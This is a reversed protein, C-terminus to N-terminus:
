GDQHQPEPTEILVREVRTRTTKLVLIRLGDVEISQGIDPISGLDHLILGAITDYHDSEPLNFGFEENLEDVHAKGTVELGRDERIVVEAEEERDHEDVIEGVITELADEITVVGAIAQYEDVVVAMHNRHRLCERLLDDVPKTGPVFWTARLLEGVTRRAQEPPKSLEPLLDKVYLIGEIHDLTDRYVPIRTRRVRIVFELVEKWPLSIDLADMDSRPTMIDLVDTDGLEMVGEIMERADEELLGEHTGATVMTRIEEEFAEEEQDATLPQDALRRLIADVIFGGSTLPLMMYALIKWFRWTHWLFRASWLRTVASPVWTTAASLLLTTSLILLFVHNLAPTGSSVGSLMACAASILFCATALLRLSQAGLAVSECRTIIEHFLDRRQYRRCILELRRRSFDRLVRAGTAAFGTISLAIVSILILNM